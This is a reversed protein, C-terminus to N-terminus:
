AEPEIIGYNGDNRRYIVKLKKDEESKYIMFVEGSLEMKILAEQHNLVKLPKTEKSVVEHPTFDKELKQLNVEDIQDNIDDLAATPSRVVNINMEIEPHAKVRHEHIHRLYRTLKAELHDIAQDVSAYMDNTKGSVKIRINNVNIIFDVSQIFRQIDMVIMAEVVRANFRTVKATLKEVAYSKMSPTIEVHRGIIHIPYEAHAYKEKVESKGM